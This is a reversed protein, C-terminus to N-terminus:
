LHSDELQPTILANLVGVQERDAIRRGQSGLEGRDAGVVVRDSEMGADAIYGGVVFVFASSFGDALGTFRAEFLGPEYTKGSVSGVSFM